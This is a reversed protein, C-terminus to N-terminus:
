FIFEKYNDCLNDADVLFRAEEEKECYYEDAYEDGSVVHECYNCCDAFRFNSNVKFNSIKKNM